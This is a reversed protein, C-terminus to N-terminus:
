QFQQDAQLRQLDLVLSRLYEEYLTQYTAAYTFYKEDLTTYIDYAEALNGLDVLRDAYLKSLQQETDKYDKLKGTM